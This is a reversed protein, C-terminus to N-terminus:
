TKKHICTCWFIAVFQMKFRSHIIWFNQCKIHQYTPKQQKSIWWWKLFRDRTLQGVKPFTLIFWHLIGKFNFYSLWTWCDWTSVMPQFDSLSASSICTQQQSINFDATCLSLSLRANMSLRTQSFIDKPYSVDFKVNLQHVSDRHNWGLWSLGECAVYTGVSLVIERPIKKVLQPM